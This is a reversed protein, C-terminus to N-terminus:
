RIIVRTSSADAGDSVSLLYVGPVANIDISLWESDVTMRNRYVAAGSMSVLTVDVSEASTGSISFKVPSATPNEMLTVILRSSQNDVINDIGSTGKTTFSKEEGYVTGSETVAFARYVYETGPELDPITVTSKIGSTTIEVPSDNVARGQTIGKHWYQIGQRKVDDSGPMIYCAVLASNEFVEIDELTRVEPEFYVSADGSYFGAWKGYYKKGSASEYVPHFKYYVEPNLNRLSGVLIGDVVPCAVYTSKVNDPADNRRWEIGTGTEADCNTAVSLRVSKLSTAVFEGESWTVDTTMGSLSTRYPNNSEAAKVGFYAWRTEGPELGKIIKIQKGDFDSKSDSSTFGFNEVTADGEDYTGEFILKTPTAKVTIKPNMGYTSIEYNSSIFTKGNYDAIGRVTYQNGPVLGKVITVQGNTCESKSIPNYLYIYCIPNVSKDYSATVIGRLSTQSRFNDYSFTVTPKRTKFEYTHQQGNKDTLYVYHIEDPHTDCISYKNDSDIALNKKSWDSNTNYSIASIPLSLKESSTNLSFDIRCLLSSSSAIDTDEFYIVKGKWTWYREIYSKDMSHAHMVLEDTASQLFKYADVNSNSQNGLIPNVILEKVTSFDFADSAISNVSTPLSVATINKCGIFAKEKISYVNALPATTLSECGFFAYPKIYVRTDDSLNQLNVEKLSTCGYFMGDFLTISSRNNIISVSELATCGKFLCSPENYYGYSTNTIIATKLGTCNEFASSGITEAPDNIETLSKCGYFASTGISKLKGATKFDTLSTCGYFMGDPIYNISSPIKISNLTECGQFAYEGISVIGDPLVVNNLKKCNEFAKRSITRISEPITIEELSICNAFAEPNIQTFSNPVSVTKLKSCRSFANSNIETVNYIGSYNITSPIIAETAKADWTIIKANKSAINLRYTVNDIVVDVNSAFLGQSAIFCLIILLLSKKIM